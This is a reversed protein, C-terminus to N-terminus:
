GKTSEQGEFINALFDKAQKSESRFAFTMLSFGGFFMFAPIILMAAASSNKSVSIDGGFNSCRM